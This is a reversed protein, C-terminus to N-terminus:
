SGPVGQRSAGPPEPPRPEAGAAHTGDRADLWTQLDPAGIADLWRGLGAVLKRPMFPGEYIWGTYVHVLSAGAELREIVDAASEIGGAAVLPLRTRARLARLVALARPALPRGSLGGAEGPDRPLTDRAVTTNTAVLGDLAAAEAAAAVVDLAAEELDPSVKLLVPKPGLEGRLGGIRELLPELYAQEQLTRLGPTNPSSVNVVLYDAVPWAARLAEEYDAVADDLAADRSKGVNIGVPADPWWPRARAARLREAVASAGLNNFGMRNILARESPLRFVRPRPNGPQARATVTGLDATGFGLAPWAAAAEANKDFGAGLGIPNPFDLGFCRVRVRPDRPMLVSGIIRLAGPHRNSLALARMVLEHVREPELRFMLSRLLAYSV